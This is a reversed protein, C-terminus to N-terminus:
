RPHFRRVALVGLGALLLAVVIQAIALPPESGSPALAQLVSIRRFAQVVVIYLNFYLTLTACLVFIWRWKGGLRQRYLAVVALALALLSVIGFIHPVKIASFPFFFGTISSLAAAFLFAAATAGLARGRLMQAMVAVGLAIDAMSILAHVLAFTALTMGFIM